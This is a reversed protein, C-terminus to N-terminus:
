QIRSLAWRASEALVQDESIQALNNSGAGGAGHLWMVLPYQKDKDYSPPIFLRYPMAQRSGNTFTRAVFGDVVDQATCPLAAFVLLFTLTLFRM